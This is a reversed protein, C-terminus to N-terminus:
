VAGSELPASGALLKQNLEKEALTIDDALDATDIVQGADKALIVRVVAARGGEHKRAVMVVSNDNQKRLSIQM